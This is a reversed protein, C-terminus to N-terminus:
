KNKEWGANIKDRLEEFTHLGSLADYSEVCSAGTASAYELCEKWSYGKIIAYLFAAICTDGAGTASLVKKPKYSHEFHRINGWGKINERLEEGITQLLEERNTAFYLGASGCKIMLVKAGMSLLKDALPAVDKEEIISALDKGKARKVWEKYRPKDIMYALEEVSPVFFDLYPMVNQIIKEWDVHGVESHEDIGTMDMSTTVGVSKVMKLIEVLERGEEQYMRKMAPPYGFHFLKSQKVIDYNIDASCFTDNVGPHHLFIRDIGAPALVVSYSTSEDESISMGDVSSHDEMQQLVMKGLDDSGVKGMLKVSAGLKQMALGTNPVCGGVHIDAKGMFLTKAPVLIENIDDIEKTIFTPTFDLCVLGAVIVDVKNEM